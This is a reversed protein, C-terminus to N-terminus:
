AFTANFITRVLVGFEARATMWLTFLLNDYPDDVPSCGDKESSSIAEFQKKKVRKKIMLSIKECDMVFQKTIEQGEKLRVERGNKPEREEPKRNDLGYNRDFSSM